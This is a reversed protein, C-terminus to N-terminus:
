LGVCLTALDRLAPLSAPKRLVARVDLATVGDAADAFEFTGELASRVSWRVLLDDDVVRPRKPTVSRGGDPIARIASM